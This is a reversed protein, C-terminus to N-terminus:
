KPSLLRTAAASIEEDTKCYALRIVNDSLERNGESYFGSIPIGTIGLNKTLWENVRVDRAIGDESELPVQELLGSTDALVFYGGQPTIPKMGAAALASCLSDRKGQLTTKISDFYGNENAAVFSRAAAVQLPTPACFAIISQTEHLPAILHAPGICYGVRWGTCSFTKGVSSLSITRDYMGDILAFREHPLGDFTMFEYVEDSLVVLQPHKKVVEAIEELEARSFVKGTPNHPTNLVLVKTDATIAKDLEHVDLKFDASTKAGPIPRLPVGKTEVGLLDAAKKYADFYPEICLVSDGENCFSVLINYIGEQAGSCVAIETMPNPTRGLIPEYVKSLTEVLEINGAPRTYQNHNTAIADAACNKM